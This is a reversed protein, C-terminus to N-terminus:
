PTLYFRISSVWLYSFLHRTGFNWSISFRNQATPQPRPQVTPFLPRPQNQAVKKPPKKLKEHAFFFFKFKKKMTADASFLQMLPCEIVVHVLHPPSPTLFHRNKDVSLAYFIDACPPPACQVSISKANDNPATKTLIISKDLVSDLSKKPIM